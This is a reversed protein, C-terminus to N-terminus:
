KQAADITPPASLLPVAGVSNTEGFWVSHATALSMGSNGVPLGWGAMRLLLMDKRFRWDVPHHDFTARWAGANTPVVVAVTMSKQAALNTTTCMRPVPVTMPPPDKLETFHPCLLEVALGLPNTLKFIAHNTGSPSNSFGLFQVVLCSPPPSWTQDPSSDPWLNDRLLALVYLVLAAAPFAVLYLSRPVPRFVPAGRDIVGTPAMAEIGCHSCRSFTDDNECGCSSCIKM